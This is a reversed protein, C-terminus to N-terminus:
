EAKVIRKVITNGDINLNLFYIGKSLNLKDSNFRVINEGAFNEENKILAVTEGLSNLLEIRVASSKTLTYNIAFENLMPNPYVSTGYVDKDEEEIGVIGSGLTYQLYYLMMENDTTFGFTILFNSTNNYKVVQRLGLHPNVSLPSGQVRDFRLVPPHQWEFYGQNFTYTPDYFGEYVQTNQNGNADLTYIDFDTGFKHTHGALMWINWMNTASTKKYDKQLTTSANPALFINGNSVLTSYMIDAQFSKPKTYVDLYVDVALVSDSNYNRIHYNFDLVTSDEWQFATGIPLSDDRSIQWANVLSNKGSSSGNISNINRFGEPFTAAEGRDFKYLIFHHSQPAMTVNVRDVRVTDSMRLDHKIFYEVESNPAILIKGLHLQYSGPATPKAPPTPISNIAKGEVYYKRISATDVVMGTQPAGQYIWQRILEKDSNSLSAQGQPMTNGEATTLAYDPDFGNSCKRLLFSREPYGPTIRKDKKALAAPNTPNVNVLRSYVNATTGTLDLNGSPTTSNHCGVTCNTQLVSFIHDFTSQSKSTHIGCFLSIAFLPLLKTKM